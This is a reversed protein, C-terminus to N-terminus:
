RVVKISGIVSEIIKMKESFTEFPILFKMSFFKNQNDSFFFSVIVMKGMNIIVQNVIFDKKLFAAKHVECNPSKKKYINEMEKILNEVDKLTSVSLQHALFLSPYITDVTDKYIYISSEQM